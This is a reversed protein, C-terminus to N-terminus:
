LEYFGMKADYFPTEIVYLSRCLEYFGMKADYFRMHLCRSNMSDLSTQFRSAMVPVPALVVFMRKVHFLREM